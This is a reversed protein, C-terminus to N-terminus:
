TKFPHNLNMLLPNPKQIVIIEPFLHILIFAAGANSFIRVFFFLKLSNKNLPTSFLSEPVSAPTDDNIARTLLAAKVRISTRNTTIKIPM